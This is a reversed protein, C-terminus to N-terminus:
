LEGVKAVHGDDKAESDTKHSRRAASFLQAIREQAEANEEQAHIRHAVSDFWM